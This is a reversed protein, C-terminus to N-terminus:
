KAVTIEAPIELVRDNWRVVIRGTAHVPRGGDFSPKGREAIPAWDVGFEVRVPVNTALKLPATLARGSGDIRQLWAPPEITVDAAATSVLVISGRMPQRLRASGLDLSPPSASVHAAYLVLGKARIIATDKSTWRVTLEADITYGRTSPDGSFEPSDWDITFTVSFRGPLVKSATVEARVPSAADITVSYPPAHKWTLQMTRTAEARFQLKGFDISPQLGDPLGPTLPTVARAVRTPTRPRPPPPATMPGIRERRPAALSSAFNALAWEVREALRRHSSQLESALQKGARNVLKPDAASSVGLVAWPEGNYNTAVYMNADTGRGKLEDYAANIEKAVNADGGRDPHHVEILSLHAAKIVCEPAGPVIGLRKWHSATRDSSKAAM